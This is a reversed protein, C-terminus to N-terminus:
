PRCQTLVFTMPSQWCKFHLDYSCFFLVLLQATSSTIISARSNADSGRRVLTTSRQCASTCPVRCHDLDEKCFQRAWDKKYSWLVLMVWTLSECLLNWKKHVNMKMSIYVSFYIVVHFCWLECYFVLVFHFNQRASHRTLFKMSCSTDPLM